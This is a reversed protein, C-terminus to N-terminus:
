LRVTTPNFFLCRIPCVSRFRTVSAGYHPQLAFLRETPTMAPTNCVCRLPTSSADVRVAVVLEGDTVSAGYHPQLAGHFPALRPKSKTVSAGYHPQLRRGRFGDGDVARNCVCRLPTSADLPRLKPYLPRVNCVCRLPTSAELDLRVGLKPFRTVSAGYHPQLTILLLLASDTQLTVSAGYHPQLM